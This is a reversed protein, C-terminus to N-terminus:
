KEGLQKKESRCGKLPVDEFVSETMPSNEHRLLPHM